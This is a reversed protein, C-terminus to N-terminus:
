RVLRFSLTRSTIAPTRAQAQYSGPRAASALTVCGPLTIARNWTFNEQVPIGRTLKSLRTGDGVACNTSAWIVHGASMVVLYLQRPSLDFTCTGPATSVVDVDFQPNRGAPYSRSGSFVSLVVSTASCRGGRETGAAARATRASATSKAAHASAASKAAKASKASKASKATPSPTASPRDSTSPNALGPVAAGASTTPSAGASASPSAAGTPDTTGSPDAAASMVGSGPSDHPGPTGGGGGSFAWALLGIVGLGAVLTAARRRWYTGPQDLYPEGEELYPEHEEPYLEPQDGYPRPQDTGDDDRYTNWEM